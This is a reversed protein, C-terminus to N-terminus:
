ELCVKTNVYKNLRLVARIPGCLSCNNNNCHCYHVLSANATRCYPYSCEWVNCRSLHFWLAKMQDCHKTVLCHDSTCKAAHRLYLILQQNVKLTKRRESDHHIPLPIMSRQSDRWNIHSERRHETCSFLFNFLHIVKSHM